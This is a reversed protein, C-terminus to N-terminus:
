ATNSPLYKISSIMTYVSNGRRTNFCNILTKMASLNITDPIIYQCIISQIHSKHEHLCKILIRKKIFINPNRDNVLKIILIAM